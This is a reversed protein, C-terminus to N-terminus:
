VSKEFRTKESDDSSRYRGLTARVKGLQILQAETRDRANCLEQMLEADLSEILKWLGVLENAILEPYGEQTALHDAARFNHFAAKRLNLVADAEEYREARLEELAKMGREYYVTLARLAREPWSGM